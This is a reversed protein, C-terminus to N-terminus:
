RLFRAVLRDVFGQPTPSIVAPPVRAILDDALGLFYSITAWNPTAPLRAHLHFGFPDRWALVSHPAIADPPWHLIREALASDVPQNPLQQHLQLIQYAADFPALGSPLEQADRFFGVASAATGSFAAVRSEVGPPIASGLLASGHAKSDRPLVAFDVEGGFTPFRLGLRVSWGRDYGSTNGSTLIWTLGSQTRGDIRFATPNGQWRRLRYRWGHQAAGARIERMTRRQGRTLLAYLGFPVGLVVAFLGAVIVLPPFLTM